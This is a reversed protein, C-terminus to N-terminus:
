FTGFRNRIRIQQSNDRGEADKGKEHEEQLALRPSRRVKGGIRLADRVGLLMAKGLAAESNRERTTQHRIM